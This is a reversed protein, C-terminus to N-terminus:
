ADLIGTPVGLAEGLRADLAASSAPDSLLVARAAALDRVCDDVLLELTRMVNADAMPTCRELHSRYADILREVLPGYWDTVPTSAVLDALGTTPPM